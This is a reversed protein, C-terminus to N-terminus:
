VQTSMGSSGATRFAIIAASCASFAFIDAVSRAWSRKTWDSRMRIALSLFCFNPALESFISRSISCSSSASSSRITAVASASSVDGSSSSARSCPGGGASSASAVGSFFCRRRGRTEFSVGRSRRSSSGPSAQGSQPPSRRTMGSAHRRCSPSSTLSSSSMIAACILTISTARTFFDQRRHSRM